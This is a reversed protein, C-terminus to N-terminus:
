RKLIDPLELLIEKSLISHQETEFSNEENNKTDDKTETNMIDEKNPSPVESQPESFKQNQPRSLLSDIISLAAIMASDERYVINLAIEKINDNSEEVNKKLPSDIGM